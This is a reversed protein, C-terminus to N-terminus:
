CQHLPPDHLGPRRGRRAREQGAMDLEGDPMGYDSFVGMERGYMEQKCFEGWATMGLCNGWYDAEHKQTENWDQKLTDDHRRRRQRRAPQPHPHRGTLQFPDGGDGSQITASVIPLTIPEPAAIPADVPLATADM